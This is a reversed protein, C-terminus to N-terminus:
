QWIDTEWTLADWLSTATTGGGGGTSGADTGGDTSGGGTGGGTSGGGTGGGTSGGGTGGGTSGGGTGGGTSGGGTGGGTSGGGTGGGTNGGGAGGGTPAACKKSADCIETGPCDASTQCQSAPAPSCAVMVLGSALSTVVVRIPTWVRRRRKM